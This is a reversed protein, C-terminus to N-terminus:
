DGSGTVTLGHDRLLGPLDEYWLAHRARIMAPRFVRGPPMAGRNWGHATHRVAAGTEFVGAHIADSRVQVITHFRGGAISRTSLGAQLHGTKGHPYKAHMEALARDARAHIRLTAELTLAAPLARLEAKMQELGDFRLTVKAM